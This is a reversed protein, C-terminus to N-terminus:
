GRGWGEGPLQSIPYEATKVDLGFQEAAYQSLTHVALCSHIFKANIGVLLIHM